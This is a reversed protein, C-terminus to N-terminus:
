PQPKGQRLEKLTSELVSWRGNSAWARFIVEAARWHPGISHWAHGRVLKDLALNICARSSSSTKFGAQKLNKRIVNWETPSIEWGHAGPPFSLKDQTIKDVQRLPHHKRPEQTRTGETAKKLVYVEKALDAAMAVPPEGPFVKFVLARTVHVVGDVSFGSISIDVTAKPLDIQM